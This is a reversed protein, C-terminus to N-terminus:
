SVSQPLSLPGMGPGRMTHPAPRPILSFSSPGGSRAEEELQAEPESLAPTEQSSHPPYDRGRGFVEAEEEETFGAEELAIRM